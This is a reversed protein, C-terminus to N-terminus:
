LLEVNSSAYLTLVWDDFGDEIYDDPVLSAHTVASGSSTVDDGFESIHSIAESLMDVESGLSIEVAKLSGLTRTTNSDAQMIDPFHSPAHLWANCKDQIVNSPEFCNFRIPSLEPSAEVYTITNVTPLKQTSIPYNRTELYECLNAIANSFLSIEMQARHMRDEMLCAGQSHFGAYSMDEEQQLQMQMMVERLSVDLLAMIDHTDVWGFLFSATTLLSDPLMDHGETQLWALLATENQEIGLFNTKYTTECTSSINPM